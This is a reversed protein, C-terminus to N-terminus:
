IIADNQIGGATRHTRVICRKLQAHSTIQAGPWLITDELVVGAGVRCGSGIATAGRLQASPHVIAGPAIQIPWDNPTIYDPRWNEALISRHVALYEAPSTLNFWDGNEIVVGGIKGGADIWDALVPVFSIKEGRPFRDFARRNWLSVNAYDYNGPHGRRNGIDLIRGEHFAVKRAVGTTRLALTVENRARFHEELLPTLPLDTLIDGSYVLFNEASLFPEANKIGGGTELLVPEHLLRLPRERYSSEGLSGAFKEPLHHTNVVFSEVGLAILHDLAFTLLPKGFIPVLPKPLDETLPQLRKGLGAGLVFAQAIM